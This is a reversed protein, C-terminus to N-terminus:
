TGKWVIVDKARSEPTVQLRTTKGNEVHGEVTTGFPAHLKFDATWDAPWAPLLIIRDGDCQMIMEELTIMGSGGNDLDPIWDHAPKWFWKFREDGYNTFESLVTKQAEDTLGLVAAETGDQGWCTKQPFKRAAYATRALRLGPKGVGYLRYPFAVYLEPNESNGPKGYAEAPLITPLGNKAGEGMPPIKGEATTQGMPVPPLEKFLTAWFERQQESTVNEPLALLRPLVARLGAIDPTPNIATLQYTELSQAPAIQMEGAPLHPYHFYYFRVIADAFPVADTRLFNTDGTDDCYDLMQLAVELAGQIHYRQWHSQIVDSPNNRGFDDTRPLGFFYMTEPYSAGDHHYYLWMRAKEFPLANLYMDFWPKLLDFDGSELLPWYLLRNNQNWYCAGWARYDPNHDDRTEKAHPPMDHGVTFLGGNFKVPFAGRSSCAIMYRQIAYGQSVQNADPSGTVHIWSRNWFDQWWQQHAAWATRSGATGTQRVEADLDDKWGKLSAVNTETLAVVNVVFNRQPAPSRLTQDNVSDLGVGFLAAGFCRRLLPDSFRGTFSDLHQEKLVEPVLSSNNFHCWSLCNTQAPFVMDARFDLNSMSDTDAPIDQLRHVERWLELTAQMNAPHKLHTEIHLAPHNADAWVRMTNPGSKLEISGNELRLVQTFDATGMFPNPQLHIRLRGLKLLDGSGAWADSKALLLVLDGTQETWVNAALDGNGIPMSDNENTGVATWIVDYGKVFHFGDDAGRTRLVFMVITLIVFFSKM